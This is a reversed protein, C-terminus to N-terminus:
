VPWDRRGRPARGVPEAALALFVSQPVAWRRTQRTLPVPGCALWSYGHSPRPTSKTARSRRLGMRSGERTSRVTCRLNHPSCKVSGTPAVLRRVAVRRGTPMVRVLRVPMVWGYRYHRRAKDVGGKLRRRPLKIRLM